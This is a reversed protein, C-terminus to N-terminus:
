PISFPILLHASLLMEEDVTAADYDIAISEPYGLEPDYRVTLRHADVAIAHEVVGFLSDITITFYRAVDLSDVPQGLADIVSVVADATVRIQVPRVAEEPCYCLRQFGFEYDASGEAQWLARNRALDDAPGTADGCAVLAAALVTLLSLSRTMM